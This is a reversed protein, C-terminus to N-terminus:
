NFRQDFDMDLLDRANPELAPEPERVEEEPAASAVLPERHIENMHARHKELQAANKCCLAALLERGEDECSVVAAGQLKGGRVDAVKLRGRSRLLFLKRKGDQFQLLVEQGSGPSSAPRDGQGTGAEMQKAMLAFIHDAVEPDTVELRAIVEEDDLRRIVQLCDGHPEIRLSERGRRLFPFGMSGGTTPEWRREKATNLFEGIEASRGETSRARRAYWDLYELILYGILAGILAGPIVHTLIISFGGEM